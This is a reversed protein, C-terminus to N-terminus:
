AFQHKLSVRSPLVELVDEASKMPLAGYDLVEEVWTLGADIVQESLLLPRNMRVAEWAQHRTGSKEGAAIVVSAHSALAMTRNRMPFAKAGISTRFQSVVLHERGIRIQLDRNSVPYVKDVPTGLVAITRGGADIAARHAATDIGAALGSVVVVDHRVLEAALDAALKLHAPTASRSGIIAVRLHNRLLSRDGVCFLERPAAKREADNLPGLVEEPRLAPPHPSM